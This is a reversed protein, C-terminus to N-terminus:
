DLQAEHFWIVRSVIEFIERHKYEVFGTLCTEQLRGISRRVARFIFFLRPLDANQSFFVKSLLDRILCKLTCYQLVNKVTM